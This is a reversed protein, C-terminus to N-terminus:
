GTSDQSKIAIGGCYELHSSEREAPPLTPEGFLVPARRPGSCPQSSSRPSGRQGSRESGVLRCRSPILAARFIMERTDTRLERLRTILGLVRTFLFMVALADTLVMAIMILVVYTGDVRIGVIESTLRHFIVVIMIFIVVIMVVVIMMVVIMVVLVVSDIRYTRVFEGPVSAPASTM